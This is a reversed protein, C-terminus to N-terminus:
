DEEDLEPEEEEEEEEDWDDDECPADGEAETCHCTYCNEGESIWYWGCNICKM